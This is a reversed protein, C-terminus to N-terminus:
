GKGRKTRLDAELSPPLLVDVPNVLPSTAIPIPPPIIHDDNDDGCLEDKFIGDIDVYEDEDVLMAPDVKDKKRRPWPIKAYRNTELVVQELM